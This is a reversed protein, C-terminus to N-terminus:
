PVPTVVIPDISGTVFCSDVVSDTSRTVFCSDCGSSRYKRDRFLLWLWRTSVEPWSVPTVVVPDISGTVFCSDFGSPGYKRDRFLLWLWRTSVEPWSVPTVVVPDISGTVFCSDCGSPRYKRDRFLLWLCQTSIEPWSVPTVVVPDISGTVFCSDCGSFRYKRYAFCADYSTNALQMGRDPKLYLQQTGFIPCFAALRIELFSNTVDTKFTEVLVSPGVVQVHSAVLWAYWQVFMVSALCTPAHPCCRALVNSSPCYVNWFVFM